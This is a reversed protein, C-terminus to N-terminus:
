RTVTVKATVPTQGRMTRVTIKGQLSRSRAAKRLARLKAGTPHVTITRAVYPALRVVRGLKITKGRARLAVTVRARGAHIGRLQLKIGSKLKQSADAVVDFAPAPALTVAAQNDGAVLDPGEAAISVQGTVADPLDGRLAVTRTEGPALRPLGCLLTTWVPPTPCGDLRAGAITSTLAPLDAALPGANTVTVDIRARGDAERVPHAAIRLDTRDETSDGRLDEDKDAEVIASTTLRAEDIREDAQGERAVSLFSGGVAGDRSVIAHAGTTQVIGVLAPCVGGPAGANGVHPAPFTYTGPTAPLEVPDGVVNGIVPRITGGQGGEGVVVQFGVSVSKAYVAACAPPLAFGQTITAAGVPTTDAFAAAPSATAAMGAAAVLLGRMM